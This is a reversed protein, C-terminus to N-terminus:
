REPLITFKSFAFASNQMEKIKISYMIVCYKKLKKYQKLQYNTM